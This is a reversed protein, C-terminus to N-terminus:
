IMGAWWLLFPAFFGIFMGIMAVDKWEVKNKVLWGINGEMESEKFGKFISKKM